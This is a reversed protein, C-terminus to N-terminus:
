SDVTASTRGTLRLVARRLRKGIGTRVKHPKGVWHFASADPGAVFRHTIVSVAVDDAHLFFIFEHTGFDIYNQVGREDIVSPGIEDHSLVIWFLPHISAPLQLTDGHGQGYRDHVAPDLGIQTGDEQIVNARGVFFEDIGERKINFVNWPFGHLQDNYFELLLLAKGDSEGKTFEMRVKPRTVLARGVVNWVLWSIGIVSAVAAIALFPVSTLLEVM